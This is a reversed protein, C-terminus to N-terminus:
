QRFVSGRDDVCPESVINGRRNEGIPIDGAIYHFARYGLSSFGFDVTSIPYITCSLRNDFSILSIDQPIRMGLAKLGALLMRASKDSPAVLAPPPEGTLVPGLMGASDAAAMAPGLGRRRLEDPDLRRHWRLFLALPDRGQNGTTDAEDSMAKYQEQIWQAERDVSGVLAKVRKRRNKRLLHVISASDIDGTQHGDRAVIFPSSGFSIGSAASLEALMEKRRAQWPIQRNHVFHVHMHGAEHLFRLATDVVDREDAYCRVVGPPLDVASTSMCTSDFWVVPEGMTVLTRLISEVPESGPRDITSVLTGRYRFGLSRIKARVAALGSPHLAQEYEPATTTMVLKVENRKAEAMFAQGFPSLWDSRCLSGWQHPRHTMVVIAQTDARRIRSEKGVIWRKGQKRVLGRAQLLRYAGVVTRGSIRLDRCLYALKPLASGPAAAGSQIRRLLQAALRESASVPPEERQAAHSSVIRIATRPGFDLEGEARLARAAARVASYPFGSETSLRRLSPLRPEAPSQIRKRLWALASAPKHSPMGPIYCLDM